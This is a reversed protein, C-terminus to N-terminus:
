RSRAIHQAIWMSAMTSFRTGKKPDFRSAALRLGALGSSVMDGEPVDAVKKSRRLIFFVLRSGRPAPLVVVVSLLLASVATLVHLFNIRM